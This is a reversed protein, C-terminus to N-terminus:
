LGCVPFRYEKEEEEEEKKKAERKLRL